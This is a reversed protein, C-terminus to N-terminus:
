TVIASLSRSLSLSLSLSLDSEDLCVKSCSGNTGGFRMNTKDRAHGTFSLLVTLVKFVCQEYRVREKM